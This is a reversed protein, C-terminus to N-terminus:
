RTRPGFQRHIADRQQGSEKIHVDGTAESAGVTMLKSMGNANMTFKGANSLMLTELTGSPLYESGQVANANQVVLELAGAGSVDVRKLMATSALGLYNASDAAVEIMVHEASGKGELVVTPFTAKDAVKNFNDLILMLKGGAGANDKILIHSPGTDTVSLENIADSDIIADYSVKDSPKLVGNVTIDRPSNLSRNGPTFSFGDFLVSKVADSDVMVSKGGKVMVSETGEGTIKVTAKQSVGELAVRGANEITVTSADDDDGLATSTVGTGGGAKLELDVDKVVELKVTELGTWQSVDGSFKGDSTVM